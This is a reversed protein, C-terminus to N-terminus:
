LLSFIGQFIFLQISRLTIGAVAETSPEESAILMAAICDSSYLRAYSIREDSGLLRIIGARLVLDFYLYQKLIRISPSDDILFPV